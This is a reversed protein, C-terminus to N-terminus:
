LKELDNEAAVRVIMAASLGAEVMKEIVFKNGILFYSSVEFDTMQIGLKRKAASRLVEEIRAMESAKQKLDNAEKLQQLTM